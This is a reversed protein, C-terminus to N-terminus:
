LIILLVVVLHYPLLNEIKITHHMEPVLLLNTAVGNFM